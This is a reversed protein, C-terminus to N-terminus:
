PKSIKLTKEAMRLISRNQQTYTSLAEIPVWKLKKSEHNTILAESDDAEFLYRIDYHYHSDDEANAPILHIDIDFIQDSLAVLTSLGSEEQAERASVTLINEEGDAHGGLQLWRSLKKHHTLLAKDRSKNVIWSSGTIHGTKLTRKFCDAENNLLGLFDHIFKKEEPYPTHYNILSEILDNRAM